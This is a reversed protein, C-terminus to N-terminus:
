RHYPAYMTNASRDPVPQNKTHLVASIAALTEFREPDNQTLDRNPAQKYLLNIAQFTLTHLTTLDFGPAALLSPCSFSCVSM